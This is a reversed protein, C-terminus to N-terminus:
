MRCSIGHTSNYRDCCLRITDLSHILINIGSLSFNHKRNKFLKTGSNGIHRLRCTIVNIIIHAM